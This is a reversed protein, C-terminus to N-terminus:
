NWFYDHILTPQLGITGGHDIMVPGTLTQLNDGLTHIINDWICNTYMQYGTQPLPIFISSYNWNGDVYRPFMAKGDFTKTGYIYNAVNKKFDRPSTWNLETIWDLVINNNIRSIDWPYGRVSKVRYRKFFDETDKAFNVVDWAPGAPGTVGHTQRSYGLKLSQDPLVLFDLVDIM